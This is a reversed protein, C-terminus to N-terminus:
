KSAPVFRLLKPQLPKLVLQDGAPEDEILDHCSGAGILKVPIGKQDYRHNVLYILYAGEGDPVIRCVFHMKEPWSLEVPLPTIEKKWLEYLEAPVPETAIKEVPFDIKVPNGFEDNKLSTEDVLIKGGQEAFRKLGALAKQSVSIQKGILIVRTKGLNNESLQKETVFRVRHGKYGLKSLLGELYGRRNGNITSTTYSYLVALEPQSQMFKMLYPALRQGDLEAVAHAVLNGPRLYINSSEGREKNVVWAYDYDYYIWTAIGSVGSVYQHFLALYIHDYTYPRKDFDWIIHNESNVVSVPKGSVQLEHIVTSQGLNITSTHMNNTCVYNDNGNYDSFESFMELDTGRRGGGFATAGTNVKAHVPIEPWYKKVEEALFRHWRAFRLANFNYFQYTAADDKDIADALEDFNKYDRKALANFKAIDGYTEWMWKIFLERDFSRPRGDLEPENALCISHIAGAYPSSKVKPILARIHEQMMKKFMPHGVPTRHKSFSLDPFEQSLWGPIYHPSILLCIAVNNEWAKKMLPELLENYATFDPEFEQKKGKVPFVSYPGLEVQIFNVGTKPFLAIDRTLEQFRHGYGTFILPQRKQEGSENKVTAVPWGNVLQIKSSQYQWADPLKGGAKLKDYRAQLDDLADDTAQTGMAIREAYFQKMDDTDAQVLDQELKPLRFKLIQIPVTVYASQPKEGYFADFKKALDEVRQIQKRIKELQADCFEQSFDKQAVKIEASGAVPEPKAALGPLALAFGAILSASLCSRSFSM